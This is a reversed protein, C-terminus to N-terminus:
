ANKVLPITGHSQSKLVSVFGIANSKTPFTSTNFVLLAAQLSTLILSLFRNSNSLKCYIRRLLKIIEGLKM